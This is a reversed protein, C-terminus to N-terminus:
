RVHASGPRERRPCGAVNGRGHVAYGLIRLTTAENQRGDIPMSAMFWLHRLAKIEARSLNDQVWEKGLLARFLADSGTAVRVISRVGEQESADIGDQLWALRNLAAAAQPDQHEIDALALIALQGDHIGGELKPNSLVAPLARRVAIDMFLATIRQEDGNLAELFPMGLIRATSADDWFSLGILEYIVPLETWDYGDRIWPIQLFVPFSMSARRHMSVLGHVHSTEDEATDAAPQAVRDIYRIGDAIWPLDRIAAAAAPDERELILLLTTATLRDTIGGQLEPLSLMEALAGRRSQAVRGLGELITGDSAQFYSGVGADDLFQMRVVQVASEEDCFAISAFADILAPHTEDDGFRQM